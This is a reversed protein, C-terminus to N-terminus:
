RSPAAGDAAAGHPQRVPAAGREDMEVALMAPAHMAISGAAPTLHSRAM